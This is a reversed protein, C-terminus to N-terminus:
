EDFIKKYEEPSLNASFTIWGFIGAVIYLLSAFSTGM